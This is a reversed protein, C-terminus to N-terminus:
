YPDPVIGNISHNDTDFSDIDVGISKADEYANDWWDDDLNIDYLSGIEKQKADESLESFTYLKIEITKM